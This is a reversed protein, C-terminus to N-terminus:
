AHEQKMTKEAHACSRFSQAPLAWVGVAEQSWTGELSWATDTQTWWLTTRAKTQGAPCSRCSSPLQADPPIRVSYSGDGNDEAHTRWRMFRNEFDVVWADNGVRKRLPSPATANGRAFSRIIITQRSADWAASSLAADTACDVCSM